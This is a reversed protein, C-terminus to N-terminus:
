LLQEAMYLFVHVYYAMSWITMFIENYPGFYRFLM